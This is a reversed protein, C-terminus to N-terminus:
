VNTKEVRQAYEAICTADCIGDHPKHSRSTALFSNHPYANICHEIAAQKDKATGALIMKKWAQPTVLKMPIDLMRVFMHLQGTVYGFTWMSSVGQGPMASIKEVYVIPKTEDPYDLTLTELWGHLERHDLERDVFPLIRVSLCGNPSLVAIGGSMGPDIGIFTNYM